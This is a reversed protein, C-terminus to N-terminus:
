YDANDAEILNKNESLDPKSRLMKVFFFVTFGTILVLTTLMFILASTNM